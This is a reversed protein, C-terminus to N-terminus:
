NHLIRSTFNLFHLNIIKLPQPWPSSPSRSILLLATTSVFSYSSPNQHHHFQRFRSLTWILKKTRVNCCLTKPPKKKKKKAASLRGQSHLSKELQLSHLCQEDHHAHKENCPCRKCLVPEPRTPKLLPRMLAWYNCCGPKSCLGLM